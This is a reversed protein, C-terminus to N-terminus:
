SGLATCETEGADTTDGAEETGLHHLLFLFSPILAAM